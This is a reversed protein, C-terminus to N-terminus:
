STNAELYKFLESPNEMYIGDTLIAQEIESFNSIEIETDAILVSKDYNYVIIHNNEAVIWYGKSKEFANDSVQNEVTQPPNTTGLKYGCIFTIIFGFIFVVLYFIYARKSM